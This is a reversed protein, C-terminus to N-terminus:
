DGITLDILMEKQPMQRKHGEQFDKGIKLIVYSKRIKKKKKKNEKLALETQCCIRLLKM